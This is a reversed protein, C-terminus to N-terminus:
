NHCYCFALLDEQNKHFARKEFPENGFNSKM